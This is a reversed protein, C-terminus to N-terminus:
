LMWAFVGAFFIVLSGVNGSQVQLGDAAARSSSTSTASANSAGSTPVVSTFTTTQGGSTVTGTTIASTFTSTHGGSIVVGTTKALAATSSSESAAGCSTSKQGGLYEEVRMVAAKHYGYIFEKIVTANTACFKTSLKLTSATGNCSRNLSVTDMISYLTVNIGRLTVQELTQEEYFSGNDRNEYKVLTQTLHTGDLNFSRSAGIKDDTGHLTLNDNPTGLWTMNGFNDVIKLVREYSYPFTMVVESRDSTFGSNCANNASTSTTSSSKTPDMKHNSTTSEVALVCCVGLCLSALFFQM